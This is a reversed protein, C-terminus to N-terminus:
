EDAYRWTLGYASKVIGRCVRSVAAPSAKPFGQDRLWASADVIADFELGNDVCLVKRGRAAIASQKIKLLQEPTFKHLRKGALLKELHNASIKRGKRQESMKKRSEMSAKKGKRAMSLKHRHAASKPLGKLSESVAKNHAHSHPRGRLAKSLAISMKERTEPTLGRCGDGGSTINYGNRQTGRSDIEIVELALAQERSDCKHLISVSFNDFGYKRIAASIAGSKGRNAATFHGQMRRKVDITMGVYQKGNVLNQILYVCYGKEPIFDFRM